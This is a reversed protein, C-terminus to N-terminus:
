DGVSMERSSGVSLGVGSPLIYGVVLREIRTVVSGDRDLIAFVGHVEVRVVELAIRRCCRCAM